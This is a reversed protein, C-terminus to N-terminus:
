FHGNSIYIHGQLMKNSDDSRLFMDLNQRCTMRTIWHSLESNITYEQKIQSQM